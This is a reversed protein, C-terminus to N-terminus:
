TLATLTSYLLSLTSYNLKFSSFLDVKHSSQKCSLRSLALLSNRCWTESVRHTVPLYYCKQQPFSIVENLVVTRWFIGVLWKMPETDPATAVTIRKWANETHYKM